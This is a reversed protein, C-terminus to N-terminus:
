QHGAGVTAQPVTRSNRRRSGPPLGGTGAGCELCISCREVAERNNCAGRRLLNMCDAKEARQTRDGVALWGRGYWGCRRRPLGARCLAATSCSPQATASRASCGGAAICIQNQHTSIPGISRVSKIRLSRGSTEDKSGVLGQEHRIHPRGNLPHSASIMTRGMWAVEVPRCRDRRDREDPQDQALPLGVKGAQGAAAEGRAVVIGRRSPNGNPRRSSRRQLIRRYARDLPCSEVGRQELVESVRPDILM